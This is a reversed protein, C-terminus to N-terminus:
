KCHNSFADAGDYDCVPECQCDWTGGECTCWGQPDDEWNTMSRLILRRVAVSRPLNNVAAWNDLAALTERSFRIKVSTSISQVAQSMLSM